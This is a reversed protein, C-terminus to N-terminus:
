ETGECSMFVFDAGFIIVTMCLLTRLSSEVGVGVSCHKQTVFESVILTKCSTFNPESM